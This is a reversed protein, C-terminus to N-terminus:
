FIIFYCHKQYSVGSFSRDTSGMCKIEAKANIKEM